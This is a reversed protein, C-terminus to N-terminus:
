SCSISNKFGFNVFFDSFTGLQERFDEIKIQDGEQRISEAMVYLPTMVLRLPLTDEPRITLNAVAPSSLMNSAVEIHEPFRSLERHLAEILGNVAGCKLLIECNEFMKSKIEDSTKCDGFNGLSFYSFYRYLDLRQQDNSIDLQEILGRIHQKKEEVSWEKESGFKAEYKAKMQKLDESEDYCFWEAIEHFFSDTDDYIFGVPEFCLLREDKNPTGPLNQERTRYTVNRAGVSREPPNEAPTPPIEM